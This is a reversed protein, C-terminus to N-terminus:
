RLLDLGDFLDKRDVVKPKGALELSNTSSSPWCLAGRHKKKTLATPFKKANIAISASLINRRATKEGM